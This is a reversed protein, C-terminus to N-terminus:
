GFDKKIPAHEKVHGRMIWVGYGGRCVIDENGGGTRGNRIEYSGALAEDHIRDSAELLGPVAKLMEPIGGLVDAANQWENYRGILLRNGFAGRGLPFAGKNPEHDNITGKGEIPINDHIPAHPGSIRQAYDQAVRMMMRTNRPTTACRMGFAFIIIRVVVVVVVLCCRGGNLANMREEAGAQAKADAHRGQNQAHIHYQSKTPQQAKGDLGFDESQVAVAKDQARLKQFDKSPGQPVQQADFPFM